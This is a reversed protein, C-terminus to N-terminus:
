CEQAGSGVTLHQMEAPIPGARNANGPPQPVGVDFALLQLLVLDLSTPRVERVHFQGGSELDRSLAPPLGAAALLRLPHHGDAGDVILSCARVMVILFLAPQVASQLQQLWLLSLQQLAVEDFPVTHSCDRRGGAHRLM